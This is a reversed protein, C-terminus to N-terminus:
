PRLGPARRPAFEARITRALAETLAIEPRFGTAAVRNAAFQTNACFKRVRLASIPLPTRRLLSAMDCIAGAAYGVASPLRLESFAPRRGLATYALDVLENMDLDPKDAYNLLYEGPGLVLCYALFHAVNDVYAMSKRNHGDGVMIFRGTTIQNLLNYVNGRNGEGFVVTPRVITLSRGQGRSLWSRYVNEAELKSRGYANFPFPTAEEDMERPSLGYVTVTSTFVMREVGLKEAVQCTTRAGGVNVDFYLRRPRINDRHEAALNYMVSCGTCTRELAAPDRVDANVWLHPHKESRAIDAIRVDHGDALLKDVLRTGIFGSGGIVVIRERRM